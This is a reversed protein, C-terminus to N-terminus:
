RAGDNLSRPVSKLAPQLPRREPVLALRMLNRARALRSM